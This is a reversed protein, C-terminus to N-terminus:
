KAFQCTAYITPPHMPNIRKNNRTVKEIASGPGRRDSAREIGRDSASASVRPMEKAGSCIDCNAGYNSAYTCAGCTWKASKSENMLKLITEDQIIEYNAYKGYLKRGEAILELEEKTFPQKPRLESIRRKEAYYSNLNM